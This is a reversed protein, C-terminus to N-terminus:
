KFVEKKGTKSDIMILKNEDTFEYKWARNSMGMLRSICAGDPDEKSFDDCDKSVMYQGEVSVQGNEYELMTKDTFEVEHGSVTESVWRRQLIGAKTMSGEDSNEMQKILEESQKQLQATEDDIKSSDSTSNATSNNGGCASLFIIGCIAVSALIIRFSKLNKM